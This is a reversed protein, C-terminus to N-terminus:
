RKPLDGRKAFRRRVLEIDRRLTEGSIETSNITVMEIVSKILEVLPGSRKDKNSKVDRTTITLPRNADLWIYCCSEVVKIRREDRAKRKDRPQVLNSGHDDHYTSVLRAKDKDKPKPPAARKVAVLNVQSDVDLSYGLLVSLEEVLALELDFRQALAQIQEARLVGDDGYDALRFKLTDKIGDFHIFIKDVPDPTEHAKNAMNNLHKPSRM